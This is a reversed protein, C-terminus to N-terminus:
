FLDSTKLGFKTAIYAADMMTLGKNRALVRQVEVVKSADPDDRLAKQVEAVLGDLKQTDVDTM